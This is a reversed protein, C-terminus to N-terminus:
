ELISPKSSGHISSPTVFAAKPPKPGYVMNSVKTPVIPAKAMKYFEQVTMHQTPYVKPLGYKEVVSSKLMSKKQEPPSHFPSENPSMLPSQWPSKNPSATQSESPNENSNEAM